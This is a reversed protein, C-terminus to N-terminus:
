SVTEVQTKKMRLIDVMNQNTSINFINNLKSSWVSPFLTFSFLDWQKSKTVQM